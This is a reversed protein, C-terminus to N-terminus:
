QRRPETAPRIEPNSTPRAPGPDPPQGIATDASQGGMETRVRHDLKAALEQQRKDTSHLYILAARESDHGMRVMIDRANTDEQALLTNGTHRLDYFTFQAPLDAVQTCAKRFLRGFTSRRYPAGNAGVFVLGSPGPEAYRTMHLRLAPDLFSPLHVTRRGARTKTRGTARRGNSLEPSASHIELLRHDLDIDERRLAALEEPRLTAFAGLLILLQWREGIREALDFVQHITAVPREAPHESGAGRINCPNRNITEDDTVATQMIAKLLRYAKAAVSAGATERQEANWLRVTNAHIHTIPIDGFTLLINARLLRQYLGRTTPM